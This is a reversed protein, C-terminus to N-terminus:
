AYIENQEVYQFWERRYMVNLEDIHDNLALDDCYIDIEEEMAESPTCGESFMSGSRTEHDILV